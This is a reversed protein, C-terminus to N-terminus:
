ELDAQFAELAKALAGVEDRRAVHPVDGTTDWKTLRQIVSRLGDLASSLSRGCLYGFAAALGAAVLLALLIAGGVGPMVMQFAVTVIVSAIATLAFFFSLKRRLDM